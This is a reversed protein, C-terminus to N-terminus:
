KDHPEDDIFSEIKLKLEEHLNNFEEPAVEKLYSCLKAGIRWYQPDDIEGNFIEHILDKTAKRQVEDVLVSDIVTLVRGRIYNEKICSINYIENIVSELKSVQNM